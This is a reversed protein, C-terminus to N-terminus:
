TEIHCIALFSFANDCPSGDSKGTKIKAMNQKVLIVVANDLTSGGDNDASDWGAFVLSVFLAPVTPFPVKFTIRYIGEKERTVDFDYGSKRSGDANVNGCIIKDM